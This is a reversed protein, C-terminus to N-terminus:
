FLDEADGHSDYSVVSHPPGESSVPFVSTWHWLLHPVIFIGVHAGLMPKFKAARRRYHHRRWIPSFNKLTVYFLLYDILMYLLLWFSRMCKPWCYIGGRNPSIIVNRYVWPDRNTKNPIESLDAEYRSIKCLISALPLSVVESYSLRSSKSKAITLKGKRHLLM